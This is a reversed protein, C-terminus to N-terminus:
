QNDAGWRGPYNPMDECGCTAFHLPPLKEDIYQDRNAQTIVPQPLIWEPSPVKQGKLVKFAAQIATRWQYAPYTPAIGKFGGDRWAQLYDQEDEGTIVPYPLGMDEFAEAVAVSVVGLDVWVADIHGARSLYDVVTAKTKARDGGVFENGIVTVGAEKFVKEAAAWRTEFIDLGPATRLVLVNGGPPINKVVYDAAAKGWAYGGISRVATVPCTTNVSRDFTIVPLSKCAEEVVPTLAASTNPSIILVDCSGSNIFSRIDSIQKDDNGQADAYDFSEIEDAHLDVEAQMTTWGTVRWANGVSANSFCLRYPAKKAYATTDAMEAEFWQEWPRNNPGNPTSNMLEIQETFQQETAVDAVQAAASNASGAALPIVTGAVAAYKQISILRM